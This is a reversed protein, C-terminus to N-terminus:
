SRMGGKPEPGPAIEIGAEELQKGIAKNDEGYMIVITVNPVGVEEGRVRIPQGEQLRRVNEKTIGLVMVRGGDSTNAGAKVM